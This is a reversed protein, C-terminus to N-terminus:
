PYLCIGFVQEGHPAHRHGAELPVCTGQGPALVAAVAGWDGGPNGWQSFAWSGTFHLDLSVM